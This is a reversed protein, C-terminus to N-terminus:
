KEPTLVCCVIRVQFKWRRDLVSVFPDCRLLVEGARIVHKM